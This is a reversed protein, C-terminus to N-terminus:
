NLKLVMIPFDLPEVNAGFQFSHLHYQVLITAIISLMLHNWSGNTALIHHQNLNFHLFIVLSNCMVCFLYGLWIFGADPPLCVKKTM